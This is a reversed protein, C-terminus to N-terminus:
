IAVATAFGVPVHKLFNLPFDELAETEAKIEESYKSDHLSRTEESRAEEEEEEAETPEFDMNDIKSEAIKEIPSKLFLKGQSHKSFRRIPTIPSMCTLSMKAFRVITSPYFCVVPLIFSFYCSFVGFRLTQDCDTHSNM